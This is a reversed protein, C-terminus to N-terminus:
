ADAGAREPGREPTEDAARKRGKLWPKVPKAAADDDGDLDARQLLRWVALALLAHTLGIAFYDIL